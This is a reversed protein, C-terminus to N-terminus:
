AGGAADAGAVNDGLDPSDSGEGDLLAGDTVSSIGSLM